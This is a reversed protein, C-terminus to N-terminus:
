RRPTFRIPQKTPGPEGRKDVKQKSTTQGNFKLDKGSKKPSNIVIGPMATWDAMQVRIRQNSKGDENQEAATRYNARAVDAQALALTSAFAALIAIRMKM